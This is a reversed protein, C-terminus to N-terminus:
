SYYSLTSHIYIEKHPKKKIAKNQLTINKVLEKGTQCELIQPLQKGILLLLDCRELITWQSSCCKCGATSYGRIVSYALCVTKNFVELLLFPASGQELTRLHVGHATGPATSSVVQQLVHFWQIGGPTNFMGFSISIIMWPMYSSHWHKDKLSPLSWSFLCHQNPHSSRYSM